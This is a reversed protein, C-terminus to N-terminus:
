VEKSARFLIKATTYISREQTKGWLFYVAQLRQALRKAPVKPDLTLDSQLRKVARVADVIVSKIMELHRYLIVEEQLFHLDREMEQAYRELFLQTNKTGYCSRHLHTALDYTTVTVGALEWDVPFLLGNPCIILNNLHMDCHAFVLPSNCELLAEKLWVPVLYEPEPMGLASFLVNHGDIWVQQYLRELHDLLTIPTALREYFNLPVELKHIECLLKVIQEIIAPPLCDDTPILSKLVQGTIYTLVMFKQDTAIFLLKPAQVRTTGLFELVQSESLCRLDWNFGKRPVRVIVQSAEGPPYVVYNRNYHGEYLEHPWSSLNSLFAYVWDFSM